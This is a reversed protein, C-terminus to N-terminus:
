KSYSKEISKVTSLLMNKLKLPAEVKVKGGFSLLKGVLYDNIPAKFSATIKGGGIKHVSQVGLWEVVDDVVSKNIILDVDEFVENSSTSLVKEINEIERREFTQELLKAKQIRGVKFLRFEKRLHCYGYFYWLGQKLVLTHVDVIRETDEGNRNHYTVSLQRKSEIADQLLKLSEGYDSQGGWTSGDIILNSFSIAPTLAKNKSIAKIKYVATEIISSSLNKNLEILTSCIADIEEDTLYGAPLKFTDAITYGGNRGRINYIPVDSLSLEDIYRYVTRLSLDFRNAIFKASVRDRSLLLFLIKLMMQYKM